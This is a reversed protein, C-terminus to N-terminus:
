HIGYNVTKFIHINQIHKSILQQINNLIAKASGLTTHRRNIPSIPL